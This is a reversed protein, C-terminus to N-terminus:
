KELEYVIRTTQNKQSQAIGDEMAPKYKWKALTKRSANEFYGQPQAHIVRINETKGTPSIDFMLDVFGEIGRSIARRPYQPAVKFIAMASGSSAGGDIKTEGFDVPAVMAIQINDQTEFNQTMEPMPPEPDPDAPKEEMPTPQEDIGRDEAMVIETIRINDEILKPPDMAILTCMLLLLTGTMLVALSASTLFKTAKALIGSNFLDREVHCTAQM